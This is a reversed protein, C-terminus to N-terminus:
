RESPPMRCLQSRARISSSPAPERLGFLAGYFARRALSEPRTERKAYREDIRRRADALDANSPTPAFFMPALVAMASPLAPSPLVAELVIAGDLASAKQVVGLDRLAMLNDSRARERTSGLAQAFVQAAAAEECTGYALVFALAVSPFDNREAVLVRVGSTLHREIVDPLPVPGASRPAPPVRLWNDDSPASAVGFTRMTSPPRASPLETSSQACGILLAVGFPSGRAFLRKVAPGM